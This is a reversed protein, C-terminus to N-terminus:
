KSSTINKASPTNEKGLIEGIKKDLDEGYLNKAVVKGDPGILVNQPIASVGYAGAAPESWGKLSSVNIWPLEHKEIGHLWGERKSDLSIGLIEFAPSKYKAYMSKLAPVQAVCPACWSAWFDLFVYRGKFDALSIMKGNVDPITFAPAVEGVKLNHPVGPVDAGGDGIKLSLPSPDIKGPHLYRQVIRSNVAHEGLTAITSDRENKAQYYCTLIYGSVGSNKHRSIWDKFFEHRKMTLATAEKLYLDAKDEDGIEMAKHYSAELDELKKGEGVAINLRNDIEQWEAVWPAGTYKADNFDNGKIQMKGDELYFVSNLSDKADGIQILYVSGGKPMPMTFSFKHNKVISSDVEGSYPEYLVAKMGDTAKKLEGTIIAGKQAYATFGSVSLVLTLFKKNM